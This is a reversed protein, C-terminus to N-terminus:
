GLTLRFTTGGEPSSSFDVKGHLATEGFLKMSYTGLGRGQGGKTSFHRQFIRPRIEPPIPRANWVLFTTTGEGSEVWLKVQGGPDSAECANILMNLLIRHLLSSDTRLEIEPLLDPLLLAKGVAAEHQSIEAVVEEVIRAVGVEGLAVRYTAANTRSLNRQIEMENKLRRSARRIMDILKQNDRDRDLNETAVLLTTLINGIDHFFVRELAAQSHQTTIDQLFLLIFTQGEFVVPSSRVQFCIEVEHGHQEVRAACTQEVTTNEALSRLIANSAGCSACFRSAGCGGPADQANLCAIAEGLRMGLIHSRNNNGLIGLLSDNVTLVRRQDDLIILLGTVAHMLSDVFPNRTLLALREPLTLPASVAAPAITTAM